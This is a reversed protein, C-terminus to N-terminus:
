RDPTPSQECSRPELAKVCGSGLRHAPDFGNSACLVCRAANVCDKIVHGDQGCRFCSKSRDVTIKCTERVHGFNWCKYCQLRQMKYSGVPILSWGIRLHGQFILEEAVSVPCRVWAIRLGSPLRKIEGVSIDTEVCGCVSAITSCVDGCGITPDLGSLRLNAMRVSRSVIASDALVSRLGEVLSDAKKVGDKGFVEIVLGGSAAERVRMSDVVTDDM